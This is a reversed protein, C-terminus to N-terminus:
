SGRTALYGYRTAGILHSALAVITSSTRPAAPPDGRGSVALALRPMQSLDRHHQGLPRLHPHGARHPDGMGIRRAIVWHRRARGAENNTLPLEPHDLAMWFTNWDNLLERALARARM